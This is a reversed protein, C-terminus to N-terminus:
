SYIRAFGKQIFDLFITFSTFSINSNNSNPAIATAAIPRTAVAIHGNSAGNIATSVNAYSGTVCFNRAHGRM